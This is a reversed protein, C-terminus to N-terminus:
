AASRGGKKGGELAAMKARREATDRRREAIALALEALLLILPNPEATARPDTM